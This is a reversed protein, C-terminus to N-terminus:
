HQENGPGERRQARFSNISAGLVVIVPVLYLFWLAWHGAHALLPAFM